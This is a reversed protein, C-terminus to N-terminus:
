KRKKYAPFIKNGRPKHEIQMEGKRGELWSRNSSLSSLRVDPGRSQLPGAVKQPNVAARKDQSVNGEL